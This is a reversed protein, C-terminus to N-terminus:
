KVSFTRDARVDDAASWRIKASGSSGQIFPTKNDTAVKSHAGHRPPHLEKRLAQDRRAMCAFEYNRQPPSERWLKGARPPLDSFTRPHRDVTAIATSLVARSLM